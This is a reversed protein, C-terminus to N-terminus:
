FEVVAIKGDTFVKDGTANSAEQPGTRDVLALARVAGTFLLDNVVKARELDVHSDSKHTFSRSAASFTISIDHTAAAIWVPKGNFIQPMRWIRIHHRMAFTDNQKQLAVDPPRGDVFLISMPAESYGRDEILARATELKSSRSLVDAPFWGAQQFADEIQAESGIFMLNILDSPKAPKQAMTQFPEANVLSQLTGAPAIAAPFDGLAPSTWLLPRTLRLTLEVGPKFEISPDVPKVLAGEVGSLIQALQGYQLGLKNIGQDIRAEATQSPQIGTILGNDSVSERANDVGEVVSFLPETRGSADVIRNFQLRLTAIQEATGDAVARYPTADATNGLVQTGAALVPVGNLFVPATVVGAIL